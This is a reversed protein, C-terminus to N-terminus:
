HGVDPIWTAYPGAVCLLHRDHQMQLVLASGLCTQAKPDTPTTSPLKGSSTSTSVDVSSAACPALQTVSRRSHKYIM